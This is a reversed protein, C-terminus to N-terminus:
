PASEAVVKIFGRTLTGAPDSLRFAKFEWDMQGDGDWDTLPPLASPDGVPVEVVPVNWSVLDGSGVVTYTVGDRTATPNSATSFATGRRVAVTTELYARDGSPVFSVQQKGEEALIGWPDTRFSFHALNPKGTAPAIDGMGDGGAPLGQLRSWAQYPSRVAVEMANIYAYTTSATNQAATLDVFIEGFRNPRIGEILAVDGSNNDTLLSSEGQNAGKITYTTRRNGTAARSGLIRFDYYLDPDLSRHASTRRPFCGMCM